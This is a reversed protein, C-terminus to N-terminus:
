LIDAIGGAPKREAEEASEAFLFFVCPQIKLNCQTGSYFSFHTYKATKQFIVPMHFQIFDFHIWM